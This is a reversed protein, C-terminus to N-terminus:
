QSGAREELIKELRELEKRLEEIQEQLQEIQEQQEQIAKVAIVGFHSYYIAKKGNKEVVAEPFLKEVEQAIFGAEPLSPEPKIYKFKKPRLRLVRSLVSEKGM